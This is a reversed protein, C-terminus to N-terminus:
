SDVLPAESSISGRMGSENFDSLTTYKLRRKKLNTLRVKEGIDVPRLLTGGRGLAPSWPLFVLKSSAFHLATQHAM